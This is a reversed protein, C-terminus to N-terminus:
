RRATGGDLIARVATVVRALEDPDSLLAALRDTGGPATHPQRAMDGAVDMRGFVTAIVDGVAGAEDGPAAALRLQIATLALSALDAMRGEEIEHPETLVLPPPDVVAADRDVFAPASPPTKAGLPREVYDAYWQPRTRMAALVLEIDAHVTRTDGATVEGTTRARRQAWSDVPWLQAGATAPVGVWVLIEVALETLWPDHALRDGLWQPLRPRQLAGRAGRRRRHADVTVARLRGTIWGEANYIEATAHALMDEVVAEVDDHFRDLCADALRNVAVACTWHGRRQENVKTLRHFVVPWAVTFAAGSLRTRQRPTATRAYEALRGERALTRLHAVADSPAPADVVM